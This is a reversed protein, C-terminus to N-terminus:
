RVPKQIKLLKLMVLLSKPSSKHFMNIEFLRVLTNAKSERRQIKRGFKIGLKKDKEEEEDEHDDNDVEDKNEEEDEEKEGTLEKEEEKKRKMKM